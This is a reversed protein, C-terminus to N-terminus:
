AARRDVDLKRAHVREIAGFAFRDSALVQVGATDLHLSPRRTYHEGSMAITLTELAHQGVRVLPNTSVIHDALLLDGGPRLVRLAETIALGDDPVECLAFTCVVADFSRDPYPLANADAREITAKRNLARLRTRAFALVEENTDVATLRVDQRYHPLNLGTGVAIELTDGAARGCVWARTDPFYREELRRMLADYRGAQDATVTRVLEM